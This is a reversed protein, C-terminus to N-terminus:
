TNTWLAIWQKIEVVATFKTKTEQRPWDSRHVYSYFALCLWNNKTHRKREEEEYIDKPYATLLVLWVFGREQTSENYFLIVLLPSLALVCRPPLFSNCWRYDQWTMRQSSLFISPASLSCAPFLRSPHIVKRSPSIQIDLCCSLDRKKNKNEEKGPLNRVNFCSRGIWKWQQRIVKDYVVLFKNVNNIRFM